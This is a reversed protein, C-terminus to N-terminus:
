RRCCSWRSRPWCWTPPAGDAAPATSVLGVVTLLAFALATSAASRAPGAAVVAVAEQPLAALGGQHRARHGRDRRGLGLRAPPGREATLTAADALGLLVAVANVRSLLDRTRRRRGRDERRPPRRHETRGVEDAQPPAAPVAM